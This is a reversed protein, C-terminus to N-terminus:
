SALSNRNGTLYVVSILIQSVASGSGAPFILNKNLTVEGGMWINKLSYPHYQMHLIPVILLYVSVLTSELKEYTFIGCKWIRLLIFSFM